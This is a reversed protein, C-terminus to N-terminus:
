PARETLRVFLRGLENHVFRGRGGGYGGGFEIGVLGTMSLEQLLEFAPIPAGPASPEARYFARLLPLCVVNLRDLAASLRQFTPLDIEGALYAEFLLGLLDPKRMDDLRDLLLVLTDGVRKRTEPDKLERVFTAREGEPVEAVRLLFTAVKRAFLHDRVAGVTTGLRILTGIVPVDRAPGDTILHDLGVEAVDAIADRLDTLVLSRVVSEELSPEGTM